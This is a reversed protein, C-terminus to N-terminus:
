LRRPRRRRDRVLPGRNPRALRSKVDMHTPDGAIVPALLGVVITGAVIGAGALAIKRRALTVLWRPAAGRSGRATALDLAGAAPDTVAM